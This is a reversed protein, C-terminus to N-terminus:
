FFRLQFLKEPQKGEIKRKASGATIASAFFRSLICDQRGQIERTEAGASGRRAGINM